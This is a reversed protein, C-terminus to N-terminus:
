EMIMDILRFDSPSLIRALVALTIFQLAAAVGMSIGSWKVGSIAQQKLTM